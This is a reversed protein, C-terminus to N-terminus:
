KRISSSVPHPSLRISPLVDADPYLVRADFQQYGVEGISAALANQAEFVISVLLSSKALSIDDHATYTKIQSVIQLLSPNGGQSLCVTLSLEGNVAFREVPLVVKDCESRPRLALALM